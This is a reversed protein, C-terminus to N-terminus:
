WRGRRSSTIPAFSSSRALDRPRDRARRVPSESAGRFSAHGALIYRREMALLSAEGERSVVPVRCIWESLTGRGARGIGSIPHPEDAPVSWRRRDLCTEAGIRLCGGRDHHRSRRPWPAEPRVGGGAITGLRNGRSRRVLCSSKFHRSSKDTDGRHVRDAAERWGSEHEEQDSRPKRRASSYNSSAALLDCRSGRWARDPAGLRRWREAM